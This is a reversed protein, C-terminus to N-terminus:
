SRCRVAVNLGELTKPERATAIVEYGRKAFEQATM